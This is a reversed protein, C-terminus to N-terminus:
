LIDLQKIPWLSPSPISFSVTADEVLALWMLVINNINNTRLKNWYKLITCPPEIPGYSRWYWIALRPKWIGQSPGPLSPVHWNLSCGWRWGSPWRGVLLKAPDLILTRWSVLLFEHCTPLYLKKTMYCFGHRSIHAALWSVWMVIRAKWVTGHREWILLVGGWRREV